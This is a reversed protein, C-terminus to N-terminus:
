EFVGKMKALILSSVLPFLVAAFLANISDLILIAVFTATSSELNLVFPDLRRDTILPM